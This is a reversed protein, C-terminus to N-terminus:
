IKRAQLRSGDPLTPADMELIRQFFRKGALTMGVGTNHAPNNWYLLGRSVFEDRLCEYQARSLPRGPGALGAHSFSTGTALRRAVALLTIEDIHLDLFTGRGFAGSPDTATIQVRFPTEAAYVKAPTPAPAPRLRDAWEARFYLWALTTGGTMGMAGWAIPNNWGAVTALSGLSAGILVGTIGAQSAPIAVSSILNQTDSM